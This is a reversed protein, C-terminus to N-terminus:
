ASVQRDYIRLMTDERTLLAFDPVWNDHGKSAATRGAYFDDDAVANFYTAWFDPTVTSSGTTEECIARATRLCRKVQAKRKERGVGPSVNPLNGGNSKVLSSANFATIADETIRPLANQKASPADSEAQSSCKDDGSRGSALATGGNPPFPPIPEIVPKIGPKHRDPVGGASGEYVVDEVSHAPLHIGSANRKSIVNIDDLGSKVTEKVGVHFNLAYQNSLREGDKARAYVEIYGADCLKSIQRIVSARCLGCDEALRAHSPHCKGTDCNHRDALMMLVMKQTCPLKQRVAWAMAQFSM